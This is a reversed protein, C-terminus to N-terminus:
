NKLKDNFQERILLIYEGKDLIDDSLKQDYDEVIHPSIITIKLKPNLAQLREVTGLSYDSHFSGNFHIIKSKPYSLFFNNISEAMTDDKICQALFLNELDFKQKSMPSNSTMQHNLVEMREYFLEKYLDKDISLDELTHIKKPIYKKDSENVSALSDLGKKSVLSAIKRPINAAIVPLKYDKAIMLLPKYDTQYNSWARSKAIFDEETIDDNLFSDLIAQTDKEFMEFSLTINKQKKVLEATIEKQFQHITYNGHFEGIFIVDYNLLENILQHFDIFEYNKIKDSDTFIPSKIIRYNLNHNELSFLSNTLLLYTLITNIMFIRLKKM